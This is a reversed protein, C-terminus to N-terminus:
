YFTDSVSYTILLYNNVDNPLAIRSSQIILNAFTNITKVNMNHTM